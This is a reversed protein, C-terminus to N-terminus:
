VVRGVSRLNATPTWFPIYDKADEAIKRLREVYATKKKLDLLSKFPEGEPIMALVLGPITHVPTKDWDFGMNLFTDGDPISRRKLTEDIMFIDEAGERKIFTGNTLVGLMIGRHHDDIEKVEQTWNLKSYWTDALRYAKCGFKDVEDAASIAAGAGHDRDKFLWLGRMGLENSKGNCFNVHLTVPFRKDDLKLGHRNMTLTWNPRYPRKSQCTLGVMGNQFYIDSLFCYTPASPDKRQSPVSMNTGLGESETEPPLCNSVYTANHERRTLARQDNVFNSDVIRELWTTVFQVGQPTARLHMIGTNPEIREWDIKTPVAAYYEEKCMRSEISSVFDADGRILHPVPDHVFAIDVDFYILNYGAELVELSPVLMPLAGFEQFSPRTGNYRAHLAGKFLPLQKNSVLKWFLEDPYPLTRVGLEELSRMEEYPSVLGHHLVYVVLDIGFHHIYCLFNRFYVKYFHAGTPYAIVAIFVTKELGMRKGKAKNKYVGAAQSLTERVQAMRSDNRAELALRKYLDANEWQGVPSAARRTGVRNPLQYVDSLRDKYGAVFLLSVLVLLNSLVM